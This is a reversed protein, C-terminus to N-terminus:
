ADSIKRRFREWAGNDLTVVSKNLTAETLPSTTSAAISGAMSNDVLPNASEDGGRGVLFLSAFLIVQIGFALVMLRVNTM